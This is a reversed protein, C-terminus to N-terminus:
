NYFHRESIESLHAEESELEAIAGRLWNCRNATWSGEVM